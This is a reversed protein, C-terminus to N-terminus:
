LLNGPNREVVQPEGTKPDQTRKYNRLHKVYLYIKPFPTELKNLDEIRKKELGDSIEALQLIPVLMSETVFLPEYPNRCYEEETKFIASNPQSKKSAEDLGIEDDVGYFYEPIKGYLFDHIRHAYGRKFVKFYEGRM